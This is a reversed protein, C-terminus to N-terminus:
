GGSEQLRQGPFRPEMKIVVRSRPYQAKLREAFLARIESEKVEGGREDAVVDFVINFVDHRGVLRLDHFAAIRADSALVEELIRAVREYEPHNRDVPDTHMITTGPFRASVRSEVEETIGHLYTSLPDAPTEVHLSIFHLEGYRHVIVDHVADIDGVEMATREIEEIVGAAPAEGLLSDIARRAISLAAWGIIVSVLLGAAGDIWALGLPRALVSAVVLATSISDTRHHWFDAELAKSDIRRGLDRSFRALWEKLVITVALIAVVVAGGTVEQPSLLRKVSEKAFEIATVGLIVSLVLASISEMRGHGFPHQADGPKASLRFGLIIIVSSGMDSLSHAADALIAISGTTVGLIGKGVSLVTNLWVSTWGELLGYRSRVVRDSVNEADPVFWRVLVNTLRKM